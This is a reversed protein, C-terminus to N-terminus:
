HGQKANKVGIGIAAPTPNGFAMAVVRRFERPSFSGAVGLALGALAAIGGIGLGALPGVALMRCIWAGILAPVFTALVPVSVNHLLWSWGAFAMVKRGTLWTGAILYSLNVAAWALAGGLAGLWMALVLVTPIIVILLGVAIAFALRPQGSALQLSYPLYMIGNLASGVALWASLPAIEAAVSANDLWLTVLPRTQFVVGFALAFLATAFLKTASGYLYELAATDGRAILASFKPYLTNFAPITFIQLGSVLLAALMYHAFAELSVMRSLVIKDFQSVLLGAIAVGGM